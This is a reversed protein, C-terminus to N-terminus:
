SEISYYSVLIRLSGTTPVTSTIRLDENDAGVGLIGNGDGRTIGGGPVIGPHTLVVGTTTPTTATAFGVRVGVGVTCAQDVTAQIQTVVIKAGSGITIIATDTQAATYAAELTIINPHGGIVFPIGARNAYLKTRNAATVATPNTGHSIAEAGQQTPNGLNISNHAVDGAVVATIPSQNNVDVRAYARQFMYNAVVNTSSAGTGNVVRFQSNISQVWIPMIRQTHTAVIVNNIYFIVKDYQAEIKYLNSSATTANAPLTITTSEIENSSPTTTPNYGSECKVTTNGTGDFHFRSFFRPSSTANEFGYYIDQNAIRQSISFVSDCSGNQFPPFAATKYVVTASSNTTGSAITLVGSAVSVTAGSGTVTAARAVDYAGTATAGTYASVLTLTTDSNVYSVQAWASEGHSSIKVFDLYHLDTAAFGTGTVVTSGNTFTATGPSYSLSTGTFWARSTGEDTTVASFTALSGASDTRLPIGGLSLNSYSPYADTPALTTNTKVSDIDASIRRLKASISGTAGASVSSDAIAGLNTDVNGVSTNGTDQKTATAAGTPLASSAVTVAGTNVTTIKGDISSLSTNGTDQKAATSAGTPLSVTGSINTLSGSVTVDNDAGLDVKLGATGDVPAVGNNTAPDGVVIVQRHNGNTSETRTDVNTGTGATIPIATDAM